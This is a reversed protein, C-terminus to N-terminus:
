SRRKRFERPAAHQRRHLIKKHRYRRPTHKKELVWSVVGRSKILVNSSFRDKSDIKEEKPPYPVNASLSFLAKKFVKSCAECRKNFDANEFCFKAAAGASLVGAAAIAAATRKKMFDGEKGFLERISLIM